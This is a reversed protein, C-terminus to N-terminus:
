LSGYNVDKRVAKGRQVVQLQKTKLDVELHEKVLSIFIIKEDKLNM